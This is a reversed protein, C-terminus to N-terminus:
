VNSSIFVIAMAMLLVIIIFIKKLINYKENMDKIQKSDMVFINEILFTLPTIEGVSSNCEYNKFNCNM